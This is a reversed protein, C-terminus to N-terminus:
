KGAEWVWLASGSEAAGRGVWQWPIGSGAESMRRSIGTFWRVVALARDFLAEVDGGARGGM